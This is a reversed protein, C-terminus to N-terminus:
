STAGRRAAHLHRETADLATDAAFNAGVHARSRIGIEALAGPDSIMRSITAALERANPEVVQASFPTGLVEPLGGRNGAVVAVGTSMAEIAVLGFPEPWQSPVVVLDLSRLIREPDSRRGLWIVNAGSQERLGAMFPSNAGGLHRTAEGTVILTPPPSPNRRDALVLEFAELLQEIGKTPDIRGIFGIATADHAIGLEDRIQLREGPAAPRFREMDVGNHVVSILKPDVGYRVWQNATYQSVALYSVIGSSPDIIAEDPHGARRRGRLKGKWGDRLGEPPLHLHAVVPVGLRRAAALGEPMLSPSHLYLLDPRKPDARGDGGSEYVPDILDGDNVRQMTTAARQWPSTLDGDERYALAVDWGRDRLGAAMSLEYLELGGGSDLHGAFFGVTPM